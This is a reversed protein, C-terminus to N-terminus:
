LVTEMQKSWEKYKPNGFRAQMEIPPLEDILVSLEELYEVVM